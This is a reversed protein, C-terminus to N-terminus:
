INKKNITTIVPSGEIKLGLYTALLNLKINLERIDKQIDDMKGNPIEAMGTSHWDVEEVGLFDRLKKDKM